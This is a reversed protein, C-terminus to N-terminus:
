ILKLMGIMGSTRVKQSKKTTQKPNQNPSQSPIRGNLSQKKRARVTPQNVTNQKTVPSM